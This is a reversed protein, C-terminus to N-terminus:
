DTAPALEVGDSIPFINKFSDESHCFYRHRHVMCTTFLTYVSMGLIYSPLSSMSTCTTLFLNTMSWFKLDVQCSIEYSNLFTHFRSYTGLTTWEAFSSCTLDFDSSENMSLISEQKLCYRYTLEDELIGIDCLRDMVLNILLMFFKKTQVDRCSKCCLHGSLELM